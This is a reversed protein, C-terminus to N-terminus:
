ESKVRRMWVLDGLADSFGWKHYFSAMEPLCCLWIANVTRLQPHQVVADMLRRGLQQDRCDPAVIVDYLTAHYVFDTLVRCFAVLRETDREILGIKIDTHELMTQVDAMDRDSCWWENQYLACLQEIQSNSLQDIPTINM